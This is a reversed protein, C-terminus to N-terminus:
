GGIKYNNGDASLPKTAEQKGTACKSHADIIVNIIIILTVNLAKRGYKSCFLFVLKNCLFYQTFALIISHFSAIPAQKPAITIIIQLTVLILMGIFLIM